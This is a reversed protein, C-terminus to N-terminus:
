LMFPGKKSSDEALSWPQWIKEKNLIGIRFFIYRVAVLYVLHSYYIGFPRLLNWIAMIFELHGYFIGVKKMGLGELIYGFKSKKNSFMGDPMGTLSPEEVSSGSKEQYLLGFFRSYIGLSGLIYWITM